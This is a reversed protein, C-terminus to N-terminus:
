GTALARRGLARWRSEFLARSWTDRTGSLPNIFTVTTDGIATLVVTHEGFNVHIARGQPSQWAGYPGSSLAIWAMVAHGYRVHQYVVAAPHGTLDVLRRGHRAAVAAVPRQYVGFGGASGGGDARGVFGLEPDGWVMRGGRVVPDLPGSRPMERQLERQDVRVGVSALLVYLATAECDNHLLQAVVPAHVPRPREVRRARVAEHQRATAVAPRAGDPSSAPSVRGDRAVALGAGVAM